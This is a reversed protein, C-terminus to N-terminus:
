APHRAGPIAGWRAPSGLGPAPAGSRMSCVTGCPAISTSARYLYIRLADHWEFRERLQSVTLFVEQVVNGAVDASGALRTAYAVLGPAPARFVMELAAGDDNRLREVLGVVRPTSMRM